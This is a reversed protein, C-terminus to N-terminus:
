FAEIASDLSKFFGRVQPDALTKGIATEKAATAAHECGAWGVYLVTGEPMREALDVSQALAPVRLAPLVALLAV